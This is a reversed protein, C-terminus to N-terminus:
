EKTEKNLWEHKYCVTHNAWSVGKDSDDCTDGIKCTDCLSNSKQEKDAHIVIASDFIKVIEGCKSDALHKGYILGAIVKDTDVLDGHGKPLVIGDQFATTIIEVLPLNAQITYNDDNLVDILEGHCIANFNDKDIDIVVRM